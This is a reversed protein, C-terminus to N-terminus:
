HHVIFLSKQFLHLQRLPPFDPDANKWLRLVIDYSRQASTDDGSIQLAHGMELQALGVYLSQPAITRHDLLRQFEGIAQKTQHDQLYALGRYYIPALSLDTCLEIPRTADLAQVAGHPDHKELSLAARVSALIGDNLITDSPAQRRAKEANIAARSVDGARALVLAANALQQSDSPATQLADKVAIIAEHRLSLEADAAAEQLYIGSAVEPLKNLVANQQAQALLRRYEKLKGSLLAIQAAATM